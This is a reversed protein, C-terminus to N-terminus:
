RGGTSTVTIECAVVGAPIVEPDLKCLAWTGSFNVASTVAGSFSIGGSVFTQDGVHCRLNGDEKLPVPNFVCSTLLWAVSAVALVLLVRRM